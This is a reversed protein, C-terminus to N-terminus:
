VARIDGREGEWEVPLIMEYPMGMRGFWRELDDQAPAEFTCIM